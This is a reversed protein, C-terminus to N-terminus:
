AARPQIGFSLLSREVPRRWERAVLVIAWVMVCTTTVASVWGGGASTASTLNYTAHWLAAALVSGGTQHAIRALVISGCTIGLLFGGVIMPLTMERYTQIFGFAPLHWGAWLAALVVAGGLPGFRAQLRDLAFGRWGLEEGYGSFVIALVVVTGLGLEPLGSYRAFADPGPFRDGRMALLVFAIALFGLPSLSYAWFRWAPHSVLTMRHWLERVGARGRWVAQVILAAFAPGLLGPFHTTSSGPAVRAGSLLLPIWFAWSIAYALVFFSVTPFRRIVSLM